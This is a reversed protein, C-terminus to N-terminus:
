YDGLILPSGIYVYTKNNEYDSSIAVQVNYKKEQISVPPIKRVLVQSYGTTSLSNENAWTDVKTAKLNKLVVDVMTLRSSQEINNNLLGTYLYYCTWELGIIKDLKNRYEMLNVKKDDTLLTVIYYTEGLKGDSEVIFQYIINQAAIDYRLIYSHSSNEETFNEPRMPLGFAKLINTLDNELSERNSTTNIKAWCDMRSELSIAGISAFSLYYPSQNEIQKGITYDISYNCLSCLFIFILVYLIARKM